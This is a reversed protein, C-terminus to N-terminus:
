RGHKKDDKMKRLKELISVYYYAIAMCGSGLAVVGAVTQILENVGTLHAAAATVLSTATTVAAKVHVQEPDIVIYSLSM